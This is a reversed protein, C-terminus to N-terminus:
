SNEIGKYSTLGMLKKIRSYEKVILHDNGAIEEAKLMVPLAEGSKWDPCHQQIFHILMGTDVQNAVKIDTPEIAIAINACIEMWGRDYGSQLQLIFEMVGAVRDAILTSSLQTKLTMMDASYERLFTLPESVKLNVLSVLAIRPRDDSYLVEFSKQLQYLQRIRSGFTSPIPTNRLAFDRLNFVREEYIEILADKDFSSMGFFKLAEKNQIDTQTQLDTAFIRYLDLQRISFSRRRM